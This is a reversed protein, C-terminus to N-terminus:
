HVMKGLFARLKFGSGNSNSNGNGSSSKTTRFSDMSRASRLSFPGSITPRTRDSRTSGASRTSRISASDSQDLQSQISGLTHPASIVPRAVSHQSRWSPWIYRRFGRLPKGKPSLPPTPPYSSDIECDDYGDEYCDDYGYHVTPMDVFKVSKALSNKTSASSTRTLISKAHPSSPKSFSSSSSATAVSPLSSISPGRRRAHQTRIDTQTLLPVSRDAKSRPRIAAPWCADDVNTNDGASKLRRYIWEPQYCPSPPLPM